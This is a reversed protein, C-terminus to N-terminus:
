DWLGTSLYREGIDNLITVVKGPRGLAQATRLAGLIYAGSSQGVFLGRLALRRCVDFADEITM